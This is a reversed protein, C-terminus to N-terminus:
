ADVGKERLRARIRQEAFGLAAEWAGLRIAEDQEPLFEGPPPENGCAEVDSLDRILAAIIQADTMTLM